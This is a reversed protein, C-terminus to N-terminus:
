IVDIVNIYVNICLYKIDKSIPQKYYKIYGNGRSKRILVDPLIRSHAFLKM